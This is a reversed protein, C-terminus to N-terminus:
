LNSWEKDPTNEEKETESRAEEKIYKPYNGQEPDSTEDFYM